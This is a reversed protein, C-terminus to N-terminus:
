IDGQKLCKARTMDSAVQCIFSAGEKSTEPLQLSCLLRGEAEEEGCWVVETGEAVRNM